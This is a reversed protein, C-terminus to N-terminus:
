FIQLEFFEGTIRPPQDAEFVAANQTPTTPQEAPPPPAGDISVFTGYRLIKLICIFIRLFDIFGVAHAYDPRKRHAAVRHPRTKRPPVTATDHLLAPRARVLTRFFISVNSKTSKLHVCVKAWLHLCAYERDVYFGIQKAWMISEIQPM